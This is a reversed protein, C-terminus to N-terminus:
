VKGYGGGELFGRVRGVVNELGALWLALAAHLKDPAGGQALHTFFSTRSPVALIALSVVSRVAWNHHHRLVDDYARKFCTHLEAHQDTQTHQLARLTFLLGRVFRVLCATAYRHGEAAEAAVLKELTPSRDRAANYKDRVGGLNTKLDNQVFGFVASGFLDFMTILGDSAELFAATDVGDDTIPVDAFSKVTEFYPQSM